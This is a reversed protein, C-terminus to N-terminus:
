WARVLGRDNAAAQWHHFSLSRPLIDPAFWGAKPDVMSWLFAVLLPAILTIAMAAYLGITLWSLGEPAARAVRLDAGHKPSAVITM